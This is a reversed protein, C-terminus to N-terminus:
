EDYMRLWGEATLREVNAFYRANVTDASVEDETQYLDIFHDSLVSGVAHLADHRSLGENMLRGMARVVPELREAIQNEVVVHICAHM